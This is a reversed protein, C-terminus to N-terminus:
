ESQGDEVERIASEHANLTVGRGEDGDHPLAVGFTWLPDDREPQYGALSLCEALAAIGNVDRIEYTKGIEPKM